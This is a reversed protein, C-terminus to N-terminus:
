TDTRKQAAIFASTDTMALTARCREGTMALLSLSAAIWRATGGGHIAASRECHRGVAIAGRKGHRAQVAMSDVRM